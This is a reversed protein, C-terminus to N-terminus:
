WIKCRKDGEWSCRCHLCLRDSNEKGGDHESCQLWQFKMTRDGSLICIQAMLLRKINGSAKERWVWGSGWEEKGMGLQQWNLVHFTVTSSVAARKRWSPWPSNTTNTPRWELCAAPHATRHADSSADFRNSVCGGSCGGSFCIWGWQKNSIFLQKLFISFTYNIHFQHFAGSMITGLIGYICHSRLSNVWM